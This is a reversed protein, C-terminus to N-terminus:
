TVEAFRIRLPKNLYAKNFRRIREEIEHNKNSATIVASATQDIKDSERYQACKHNYGKCILCKKNTDKGEFSKTIYKWFCKKIAQLKTM